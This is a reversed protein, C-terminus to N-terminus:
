VGALEENLQRVEEAEDDGKANSVVFKTIWEYSSHRDRRPM